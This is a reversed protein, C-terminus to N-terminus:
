MPWRGFVQLRCKSCKLRPAPLFFDVSWGTCKSCGLGVWGGDSKKKLVNKPLPLEFVGCLYKQSFDMDFVKELCFLCFNLTM